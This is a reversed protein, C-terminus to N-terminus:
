HLKQSNIFRILEAVAQYFDPPIVQDVEVQKYLARALTVNEIVPIDHETAIERIRLALIDQGKAVVVPAQDLPPSYRLAVSFHTPNAIVMTAKPVNAMMQRRIRDRALSRMRAKVMPNGEIDKHEEKVEQKTMRLNQRWQFRSWAFDFGAIAVVAVAFSILLSSIESRIYEPLASADTALADIFVTNGKFFSLYVILSVGILKALSKLFEVFGAKGFIRSFGSAPSIRSFQPRIREGVVRPANQVMSAAIGIVPIMVLIPALALGVNGGIVFMLHKIDEAGNLRWGEPRDIWQMLFNSLKSMAPFAIFVAIMSFGVLSAFMPLERSFPLNGKEEAKRIKHETPEETQSDKDPKDEAM